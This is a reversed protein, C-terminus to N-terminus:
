PWIHIIVETYYDLFHQNYLDWKIDVTNSCDRIEFRSCKSLFTDRFKVFKEKLEPSRLHWEGVAFDVNKKMFDLNEENFVHYEGSECDTKLFNIKELSYQKILTDFRIEQVKGEHFWVEPNDFYGDRNSIAKDIQTVPYGRTNRVLCPFESSSPELAYVHAPKKHLISQVFPGISAGLDLVIDGEKVEEFTEYLKNQFIETRLLEYLDETMPGRELIM